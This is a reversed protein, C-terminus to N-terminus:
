FIYSVGAQIFIFNLDKTKFEFFQTESVKTLNLLYSISVSFIPFSKGFTFSISPETGFIATNEKIKEFEIQSLNLIFSNKAKISFKPTIKRQLGFSVGPLLSYIKINDLLALTQPKLGFIFNLIKTSYIMELNAGTRLATRGFNTGAGLEWNIDYGIKKGIVRINLTESLGGYELNIKIIDDLESEHRIAFKLEKENKELVKIEGASTLISITSSDMFVTNGAKDKIKLTIIAEDKGDGKIFSKNQTEAYIYRPKGPILLIQTAARLFILEKQNEDSTFETEFNIEVNYRQVEDPMKEAWFLFYQGTKDKKSEIKGFSTRVKIPIEEPKIKEGTIDEIEVKLKVKDEGTAEASSKEPYISINYPIRKIETKLTKDDFSINYRGFGPILVLSYENIKSVKYEQSFDDKTIKIESEATTIKDTAIKDKTIILIKKGIKIPKFKIKQEEFKYEPIQIEEETKNGVKDKLVVKFKKEGPFINFSISFKGRKDSTFKIIREGIKIEGRSEPETEGEFTIRTPIKIKGFFYFTNEKEGNTKKSSLFLIDEYPTKLYRKYKLKIRNNDKNIELIKGYYAEGNIEDGEPIDFNMEVIEPSTLNIEPEKEQRSFCKKHIKVREKEKDKYIVEFEEEDKYILKWVSDKIKQNEIGEIKEITDQITNQSISVLYFEEKIGCIFENETLIFQSTIILIFTSILLDM